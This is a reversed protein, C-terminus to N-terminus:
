AADAERIPESSTLLARVEAALADDNREAEALEGLRREIGQLALVLEDVRTSMVDTLDGREIAMRMVNALKAVQNSHVGVARRQHARGDIADTLEQLADMLPAALSEFVAAKADAEAARQQAATIAAARFNDYVAAIAGGRSLGLHARDADVNELREPTMPVFVGKANPSLARGASARRTPSKAANM